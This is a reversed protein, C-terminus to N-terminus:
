RTSSCRAQTRRNKLRRFRARALNALVIDKSATEAALSTIGSLEAGEAIRILDAPSIEFLLFEFSGGFDAKYAEALERIYISKGAFDNINVRHQHHIRRTHGGISSVGVVLGRNSSSTKVQDLRVVSTGKRFVVIDSGALTQNISLQKLPCGFTDTATTGHSKMHSDSIPVLVRM